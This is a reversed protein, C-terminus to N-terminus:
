IGLDVYSIVWKFKGSKTRPLENIFEIDIKVDAGLREQFEHILHRSDSEAYTQNPILKIKIHDYDEQIIQSGEISTMPKFPHTLTSSSILRGDKLTIIDEAKTAVDEMLPLSRGCACQYPKMATMDDTVYRILPMGYNHLGTGVLRGLKGSSVPMGDDEIIETIGYESCVHHGDHRDCETAFVVREALAYYDFMKCEFREEIVARQFDYLTESSSIVAKLPFTREISQLYKAMIYLTSPYGDLVVPAFSELKELFHPLNSPSLHFSSFLLQNHLYNHRWFPPKSQTLPVIVNGRLVAIRDGFRKLSVDAWRYQRDLAAYTMFITHSDYLIELPSGTTGSTHGPKLEKLKYSSSVLDNFHRKVDKKTLLPLKQLDHITKIDAPVLKLSNFVNRYYPVTNYAHAILRQLADEQCAELQDESNWQSQDLLDRYAAFDGRYRQQDLVFSYGTLLLDQLVVPCFSYFRSLHSNM